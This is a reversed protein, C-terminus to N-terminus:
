PSGTALFQRVCSVAGKVINAMLLPGKHLKAFVKIHHYLLFVFNKIPFQKEKM